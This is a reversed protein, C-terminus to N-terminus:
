LYKLPNQVVGKRKLEFHVHTGFSQGTNGMVGIKQGKEVKQGRDVNIQSLHAYLTRYGNGHDIIIAKGYSGRWGAFIVKGNDAALINRNSSVIDLGKHMRGWRQGYNSTIRAKIVPWSFKGTGLDPVIKTGNFVIAPVPDQIMKESIAEKQVLLGNEEIMEYTVKKLGEKGQQKTKRSGKPLTSDDRYTTAFPVTEDVMQKEVMRVTVAPRIPTVNLEQGVNIFDGKLDPNNRYMENMTIGYKEAICSLCDGEEVIYEVPQNNGQLLKSELDTKEMVKGPEIKVPKLEVEEKFDVQQLQKSENNNSQELSLIRVKNKEKKKHDAVFKQKVNELIQNAAAMDRAYGVTKGNVNVEVADAHINLLGSLANIAAENDTKGKFQKENRFTLKPELDIVTDPYLTKAAEKQKTLWDRIVNPQDVAGIEKGKYIVYYVDKMNANIYQYTFNITGALIALVAALLGLRKKNMRWIAM